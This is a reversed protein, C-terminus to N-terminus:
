TPYGLSQLHGASKRWRTTTSMHIDLKFYILRPVCRVLENQAISHSQHLPEAAALAPWAACGAASILFQPSPSWANAGSANFTGDHNGPRVVKMGMAQWKMDM